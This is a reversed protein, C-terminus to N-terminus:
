PQFEFHTVLQFVLQLVHEVKTEQSLAVRVNNFVGESKLDKRHLVHILHRKFPSNDGNCVHTQRRPLMWSESCYSSNSLENAHFELLNGQGHSTSNLILLVLLYISNM